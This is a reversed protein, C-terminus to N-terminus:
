KTKKKKLWAGGGCRCRSVWEKGVGREESRLKRRIVWELWIQNTFEVWPPPSNHASESPFVSQAAPGRETHRPWHLTAPWDGARRFFALCPALLKRRNILDSSCVDSSWDSIRM